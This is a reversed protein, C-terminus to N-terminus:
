VNIFLKTGTFNESGSLHIVILVYCMFGLILECTGVWCCCLTGGPRRRNNGGASGLSAFCLWTGAAVQVLALAM